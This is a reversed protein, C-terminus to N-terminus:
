VHRVRGEGDICVSADFRLIRLGDEYDEDYIPPEAPLGAALGYIKEPIRAGAAISMPAGGGLRPNIEIIHFGDHNRIGQVTIPGAPEIAKTLEKMLGIIEPDKAIRGKSIEGSRTALRERPVIYLPMGRFDALIDVTYERGEVYEQLIYGPIYRVFFDLEEQNKVPFANISSSGDMPKIFLPFEYEGRPDYSLTRPTLFGKEELLRATHYKNRCSQILETSSLLIRAGTEREIQQRNLALPLLETDITPIILSIRELLCIHILEKVYTEATVRSIPHHRDSFFAAPADEGADVTVISGSIGLRDRAQRFLRVLEVRRGASLFLLNKEQKQIACHKM